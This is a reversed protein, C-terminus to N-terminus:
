ETALFKTIDDDNKIQDNRIFHESIAKDLETKTMEEFFYEGGFKSLKHRLRQKVTALDIIRKRLEEYNPMKEMKVVTLVNARNKPNDLLFFEDLASLRDM